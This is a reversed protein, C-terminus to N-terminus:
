KLRFGIANAKPPNKIKKIDSVVGALVHEHLKQVGEVKSLRKAIDKHETLINRLNVFARVIVINMQIARDSNLVSSLMVIGHETFASPPKRLGMKTAPNSTVFQSKWNELEKKNFQFMFGDPFRKLNRKVAQNLRKTPVQYLEALDSDLMVRQGRINYIRREILQEPVPLNGLIPVKNPKVMTKHKIIINVDYFM